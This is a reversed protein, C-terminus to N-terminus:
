AITTTIPTCSIAATARYRPWRVPLCWCCRLGQEGTTMGLVSAILAWLGGQWKTCIRVDRFVVEERLFWWNKEAMSSAVLKVLKSASKSEEKYVFEGGVVVSEDDANRLCLKPQPATRLRVEGFRTANWADWWKGELEECLM